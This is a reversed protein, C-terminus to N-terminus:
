EVSLVDDERLVDGHRRSVIIEGSMGRDLGPLAVGDSRRGIIHVTLWLDDDDPSTVDLYLKDGLTLEEYARGQVRWLTSDTGAEDVTAVAFMKRQNM